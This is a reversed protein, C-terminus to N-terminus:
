GFFTTFRYICQQLPLERFELPSDFLGFGLLQVFPLLCIASVYPFLFAGLSSIFSDSGTGFDKVGGLM